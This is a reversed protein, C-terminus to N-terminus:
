RRVVFWGYAGLGAMQDSSFAGDYVDGNAFTNVGRGERVTVGSSITCDGVYRSGDPFVKQEVAV